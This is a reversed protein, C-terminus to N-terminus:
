SPQAGVVADAAAAVPELHGMGRFTGLDADAICRVKVDNLTLDGVLRLPGTEAERSVNSVDSMAKDLRVTLETGGRTNTFKVHVYGREICEKLEERTGKPRLVLEIPHEGTALRNVLEDM